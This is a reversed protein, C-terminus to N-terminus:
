QAHVAVECQDTELKSLTVTVAGEMGSITREAATWVNVFIPAACHYNNHSGIVPVM